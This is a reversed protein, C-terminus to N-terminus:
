LVLAETKLTWHRLFNAGASFENVQDQNFYRRLSDSASYFSELQDANMYQGVIQYDDLRDVLSRVRDALESNTNQLKALETRLSDAEQKIAVTISDLLVLEDADHFLGSLERRVEDSEAQEKWELL